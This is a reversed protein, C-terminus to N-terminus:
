VRAVRFCSLWADVSARLNAPFRGRWLTADDRCLKLLLPLSPLAERFVVGNCQKWLQWCCLLMFAPATDPAIASPPTILHLTGVHADSPIVVGVSVWFPAVAPCHFLMHSTTELEVGCLPCCAEDSTIITKRLLLDRTHIRSQVLLWGFFRLRSPAHSNWIFSAHPSAVGGFRCLKYLAGTVLKGKPGACLTLRRDDVASTLVVPALRVQLLALEGEGAATLRPV